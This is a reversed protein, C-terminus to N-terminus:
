SLPRYLHERLAEIQKALTQPAPGTHGDADIRAAARQPYDRQPPM